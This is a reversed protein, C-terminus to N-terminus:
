FDTREVTKRFGSCFKNRCGFPVEESLIYVNNGVSSMFPMQCSFEALCGGIWAWTEFLVRCDFTKVVMSVAFTLFSSLLAFGCVM